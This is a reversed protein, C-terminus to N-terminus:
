GGLLGRRWCPLREPATEPEPPTSSDPVSESRYECFTTSHTKQSSRGSPTRLLESSCGQELVVGETRLREYFDAGYGEPAILRARYRYLRV